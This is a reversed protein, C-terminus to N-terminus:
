NKGKFFRPFILLCVSILFLNLLLRTFPISDNSEPISCGCGPTANSTDPICKGAICIEGDACLAGDDIEGNCNNDLGDCVELEPPKEGTCEGWHGDICVSVGPMCEGIESGCSRSEGDICECGEDVYGDCNDDVGNCVEPSPNVAGECEGWVGNICRSVGQRCVGANIGCEQKEGDICSCGEDIVGDCDNDSGDCIEDTPAPADCQTLMSNVCYQFGSGCPTSCSVAIDEDIEGDCDNDLGDCIEEMINQAISNLASVLSDLDGAVHYCNGSSLPDDNSPNCGSIYTGSEYAIQNLVLADVGEGGFGIVYMTAGTQERLHASAEVPTFRTEPDYPYCWERGDTILVVARRKSTDRLPAYEAAREITAAMPTSNAPPPPPPEALYNNIAETTGPGIDVVVRGPNCGDPYPFVMLGFDIRDSFTGLITNLATRAAAWRTEGSPVNYAVMSSSRDLILLVSPKDCYSHVNKAYISILIVSLFAPIFVRTKLLNRRKM